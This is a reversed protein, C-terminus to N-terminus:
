KPTKLVGGCSADVWYLFQSDAVLAVPTIPNPVLTVASSSGDLPAKQISGNVNSNGSNIWYAYTSDTVLGWPAALGTALAKVPSGSLPAINVFGNTFDSEDECWLISTSTVAVFVPYALDPVLEEVPAGSLPAKLIGDYAPNNCVVYLDSGTITMAYDQIRGVGGDGPLNALFVSPGADGDIPVSYVASQDGNSDNTAYYVDTASLAVLEQLALNPDGQSTLTGMPNPQGTALTSPKGGARPMKEILGSTGSSDLAAWYLNTADIQLGYAQTLGSVLTKPTGGAAPMSLIAAGGKSSGFNVWYLTGDSIQLGVPIDQGDALVTCGTCACPGTNSDPSEEQLVDKAGDGEGGEPKKAGADPPEYEVDEIGAILRCAALGLGAIGALVSLTIARAM